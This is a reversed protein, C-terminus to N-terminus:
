RSFVMAPDIRTVKSIAAIASIACMFLTLGFLLAALGTTMVIPLPLAMTETVYIILLAILMGLAYGIAASLAAQSLIVKHIYGTSSGLARLTAFENLHDKTSSYLTQAVIVTGVILGLIAGGILAVGAGTSMMWHNLSRNRFEAKTLVQENPLREQLAARVSETNSGPELQVLGYTIQDPGLGLLSRARAFTTFVFPTTTFSRIGDTLGVVRVRNGNIQATAGLGSAGLDELYTKDIIVADRAGLAAVDGDIVNWPVLGGDEPDAGVLVITATGGDPKKWDVFSTIMPIVSAVGPTSLAVFRARQNIPQAEEFNKNGYAMIWIDGKAHDITSAIIQRAGLYLGLQVAILVIAFLIGILTVALRVRDHFLNRFALIFTM